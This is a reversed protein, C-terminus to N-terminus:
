VLTKISRGLLLKAAPPTVANGFQKVQERQTGKVVYSSPFAMGRGVEAPQLMRFYCDEVAPMEGQQVLGHGNETHITLLPESVPHPPGDGNAYGLFFPMPTVLGHRDAPTLTGMAEDVGKQSGSSGYYSILFPTPSLLGHHGGGATITALADDVQRVDQNNRLQVMFPALTLGWRTQTTQTGMAQDLPINRNDFDNVSTLFGPIVVSNVAQPMQTALPETVPRNRNDSHNLSTVFPMLLAQSQRITQTFLPGSVPRSRNEGDGYVTEVVLYRGAFRRLGEAIRSLTKPRLPKARDGIRQAEVSWDIANAAAFFYPEVKVPKGPTSCQPCRYFYQIGYRGWQGGARRVARTQIWTQIAEVDQECNACWALPRLELDPRKNGKRWFVVYLRDRSQPAFDHQDSVNRPDLHAFMSNLYVVQHEYGLNHMAMIWADWNVWWRVDVVNEIVVLNYQHFESFRVVDWMTARSREASPDIAAKEWLHLQAQRRRVGKALTHNQCEPSAWLIDTSNYREPSVLSIDACDHHAERFNESHTEVALRWHNVALYIEVGAAAAGLSSGGAGCFLDTVTLYSRKM